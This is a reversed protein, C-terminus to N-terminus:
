CDAASGPADARFGVGLRRTSEFLSRSRVVQDTLERCDSGGGEVYSLTWEGVNKGRGERGGGMTRAKTLWDDVNDPGVAWPPVRDERGGCSGPWERIIGAARFGTVYSARRRCSRDSLIM